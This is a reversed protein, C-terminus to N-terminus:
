VAGTAGSHSISSSSVVVSHGLVASTVPNARTHVQTRSLHIALYGTDQAVQARIGSKNPKDAVVTPPQYHQTLHKAEDRAAIPCLAIRYTDIEAVFSPQQKFSRRRCCCLGCFRQFQPAWFMQLLSIHGSWRHGRLDSSEVDCFDRNSTAENKGSASLPVWQQASVNRPGIHPRVFKGLRPGSRMSGHSRLYILLSSSHPSPSFLCSLLLGLKCSCLACATSFTIFVGRIGVVICMPM